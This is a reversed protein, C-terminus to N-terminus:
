SSALTSIMLGREEDLHRGWAEIHARRAELVVLGHAECWECWQRIAIVYHERAKAPYRALFGGIVFLLLNDTSLVPLSTRQEAM